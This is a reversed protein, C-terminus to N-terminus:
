QSVPDIQCSAGSCQATDTDFANAMGIFCWPVMYTTSRDPRILVHAAIATPCFRMGGLLAQQHTNELHKGTNTFWRANVLGQVSM